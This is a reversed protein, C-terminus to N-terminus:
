AKHSLETAKLGLFHRFNRAHQQAGRRTMPYAVRAGSFVDRVVHHSKVGGTGIGRHEDGKAMIVDDTALQQFPATPADIMDDAKGDPKRAVRM